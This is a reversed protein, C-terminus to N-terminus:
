SLFYILCINSLIINHKHNDIAQGVYEKENGCYPPVNFSIM